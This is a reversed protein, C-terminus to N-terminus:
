ASFRGLVSSPNQETGIAQPQPQPLEPPYYEPELWQPNASAGPVHNRNPITWQESGKKSSKSAGIAPHNTMDGIHTALQKVYGDTEPDDLAITVLHNIPGQRHQHPGEVWSEQFLRPKQAILWEHAAEPLQSHMKQGLHDTAPIQVRYTAHQAM